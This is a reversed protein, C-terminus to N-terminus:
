RVGSSPMFAVVEASVVSAELTTQSAQTTRDGNDEAPPLSQQSSVTYSNNANM